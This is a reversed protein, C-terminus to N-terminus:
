INAARRRYIAALFSATFLLQLCPSTMAKKSETPYSLDNETESKTELKGKKAINTRCIRGVGLWIVYWV